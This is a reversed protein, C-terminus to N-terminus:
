GQSWLIKKTEKSVAVTKELPGAKLRVLVTDSQGPVPHDAPRDGAPGARRAGLYKSELESQSPMVSQAGKRPGNDDHDLLAPGQEDLATVKDAQWGPNAEEALKAFDTMMDKQTM